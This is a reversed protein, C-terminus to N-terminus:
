FNSLVKVIAEPYAKHEMKLVKKKISVKNDNKKVEIKKKLIIKGSDLKKTVFHVTCGTYKDKNNIVKEHTNLGKYKPLLSPHINIIKGKFLNIFNKSLIKMFGALCILKIQNIKLINIVEKEKTKSKTFDLVLTKINYKKAVQLGKIDKKNSLVLSVKFFSKKKLSNKIISLLNSGRGSIFVAINIKNVLNGNLKKM